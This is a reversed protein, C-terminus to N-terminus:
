SITAEGQQQPLKSPSNEDGGVGGGWRGDGNSLCPPPVPEGEKALWNGQLRRTGQGRGARVSLPPRMAGACHERGGCDTRQLRLGRRGRSPGEAGSGGAPAAAEAAADGGGM